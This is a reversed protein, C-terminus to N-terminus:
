IIDRIQEYVDTNKIITYNNTLIPLGYLPTFLFEFFYDEKNTFTALNNKNFYYNDFDTHIKIDEILRYEDMTGNNDPNNGNPYISNFFINVDNLYELSPNKKVSIDYGAPVIIKFFPKIEHRFISTNTIQRGKHVELSSTLNFVITGHKTFNLNRNEDKTIFVINNCFDLNVIDDPIFDKKEIISVYKKPHYKKSTQRILMELEPTMKGFM